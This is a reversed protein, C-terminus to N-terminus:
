QDAAGDDVAGSSTVDANTVSITVLPTAAFGLAFLAAATDPAGTEKRSFSVPALQRLIRCLLFTAAPCRLVTYSACSPWATLSCGDGPLHGPSCGSAIQGQFFWQMARRPGSSENRWPAALALALAELRRELAPTIPPDVSNPLAEFTADSDGYSQSAGNM